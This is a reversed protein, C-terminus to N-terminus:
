FAVRWAAYTWNNDGEPLLILYIFHLITSHLHVSGDLIYKRLFAETWLNVQDKVARIHVNEAM